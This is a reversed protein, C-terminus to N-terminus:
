GTRAEKLYKDLFRLIAGYGEIQNKKKTFGHGEDPFVIYEVPVGNKKVAAVIDDSEPKIVRPDNAGQLVLLPRRIKDAHFVPSIARLMAEDKAPDGIEQYLAVRQSEWWKPISQLTRLWNSVGFIDVGVAFEQPQFALAALVMYGGYSGGIIGIKGADVYPLSALYKKGEVCDRLPEKGHKRDDAVYFTKGYGSSGRNNIGLVAYGHNVLYQITASYGKRTQGGPGGHVWVLAPVKNRPSAQLPKYYISPITIGDSAKFRVVESDVLDAPDIEKSLTDTLRVPAASGLEYVYLNSPSRDGNVYFAMSKESDAFRVATIDGAPLKPLSVEKRTQNDFVHIVTHGDENIGTARYRGNKSFRTFVVDWKPTEVDESEGNPIDYKRVRTFETGVNSLYYLTGLAPDFEQPTNDARDRHATINKAENKAASWLFIDSDASGNTKVLAIARGQPSVAGIDYGAENKFVLKREYTKTDYRYLDFFKPDRENTEVWFAGRDGSWGDFIAKLKEGPTLDRETGDLERVYLHNLENGGQDRTYLVRDDFPFYSVAYTTDTTSSTLATPEGGAVPVSYVNFVGTQNSSFLIRKEDSSFSADRVGTTAYFQEITYSKPTRVAVKPSPAAALTFLVLALLHAFRSSFDRARVPESHGAPSLRATV